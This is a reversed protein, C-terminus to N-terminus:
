PLGLLERYGDKIVPGRERLKAIEAYPDLADGFMAADAVFPDFTPDAFDKIRPLASMPLPKATSKTSEAMKWGRPTFSGSGNPVHCASFLGEKLRGKVGRHIFM